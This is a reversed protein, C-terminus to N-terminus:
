WRTCRRCPRAQESSSGTRGRDHLFRIRHHLVADCPECVVRTSRGPDAGSSQSQQLLATRASTIFREIARSAIPTSELLLILLQNSAAATGKQQSLLEIAGQTATGTRRICDGVVPDLELAQTAPGMVENPRLWRERIARALAQTLGEIPRTLQDALSCDVFLSKADDSEDSALLRVSLELAQLAEGKEFMLRSLNYLAPVLNPKLMLAHRYEVEAEDFKGLRILADALGCHGAAVHPAIRVAKRYAEVARTSNIPCHWRV